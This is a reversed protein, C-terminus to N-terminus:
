GFLTNKDVNEAIIINAPIGPNDPLIAKHAQERIDNILKLKDNKNYDPSNKKPITIIFEIIDDNGMSDREINKLLTKEKKDDDRHKKYIKENIYEINEINIEQSNELIIDLLNRLVKADVYDDIVSEKIGKKITENLIPVSDHKKTFILKFITKKTLKDKIIYFTILITIGLIGGIINNLFDDAERDVTSITEQNEDYYTNNYTNNYYGSGSRRSGSYSSGSSSSRSGSYSYSRSGSSSRSSFRRSGSRGGSRRAFLPISFFLVLIIIWFKLIIFKKNM